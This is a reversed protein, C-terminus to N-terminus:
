DRMFAVNEWVPAQDHADCGGDDKKGNQPEQRHEDSQRDPQAGLPVLAHHHGACM